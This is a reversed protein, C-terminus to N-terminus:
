RSQKKKRELSNYISDDTCLKPKVFVFLDQYDLPCLNVGDDRAVDCASGLGVLWELPVKWKVVLVLGLWYRDDRGRRCGVLM